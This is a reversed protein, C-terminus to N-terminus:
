LDEGEVYTVASSTVSTTTSPSERPRRRSTPAPTPSSSTPRAAASARHLMEQFSSNDNIPAIIQEQVAPAIYQGQWTVPLTLHQSLLSACETVEPCMGNMRSKREKKYAPVISHSWISGTNSTKNGHTVTGTVAHVDTCSYSLKPCSGAKSAKVVGKCGKCVVQLVEGSKM